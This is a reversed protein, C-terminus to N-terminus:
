MATIAPNPPMARVRLFFFPERFDYPTRCGAMAPPPTPPPIRIAIMPKMLCAIAFFYTILGGGSQVTHVAVPSERVGINWFDRCTYSM